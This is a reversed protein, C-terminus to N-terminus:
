LYVEIYRRRRPRFVLSAAHTFARHVAKAATVTSKGWQRSCNLIGRKATSHLLATPIEKGVIKQPHSVPSNYTLWIM